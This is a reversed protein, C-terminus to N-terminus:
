CFVAGSRVGVCPLPGAPIIKHRVTGKDGIHESPSNVHGSPLPIHVPALYCPIVYRKNHQSGARFTFHIRIKMLIDLPGAARPNLNSHIDIRQGSSRFHSHFFGIKDDIQDLVVRHGIRHRQIHLVASLCSEGFIFQSGNGIGEAASDGTCPIIGNNIGVFM